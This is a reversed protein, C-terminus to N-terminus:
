ACRRGSASSWTSSSRPRGASCGGCTRSASGARLAPRKEVLLALAREEEEPSVEAQPLRAAELYMLREDIAAELAAEEPLGRM